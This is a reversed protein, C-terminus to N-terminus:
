SRLTTLPAVGVLHPNDKVMVELLELRGRLWDLLTGLYRYIGKTSMSPFAEPPPRIDDNAQSNQSSALRRPPM